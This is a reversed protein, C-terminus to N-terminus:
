GINGLSLIYRIYLTYRINNIRYLSIIIVKSVRNSKKSKKRNVEHWVENNDEIKNEEKNDINTKKM